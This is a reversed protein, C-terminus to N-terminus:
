RIAVEAQTVISAADMIHRGVAYSITRQNVELFEFTIYTNRYVRGIVMFCSLSVVVNLAALRRNCASRRVYM